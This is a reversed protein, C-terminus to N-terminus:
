EYDDTRKIEYAAIAPLVRRFVTNEAEKFESQPDARASELKVNIVYHDDEALIKAIGLDPDPLARASIYEGWNDNDRDIWRWPGVDNLRERIEAMSMRSKFAYAYIDRNM